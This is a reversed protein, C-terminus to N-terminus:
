KFVAIKRMNAVKLAELLKLNGSLPLILRGGGCLFIVEDTENM